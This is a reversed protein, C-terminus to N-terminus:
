VGQHSMDSEWEVNSTSSLGALFSFHQPSLFIFIGQCGILYLCGILNAAGVVYRLHGILDPLTAMVVRTETPNAPDTPEPASRWRAGPSVQGSVGALAHQNFVALLAPCFRRSTVPQRAPGRLAHAGARTRTLERSGAPLDRASEGTRRNTRMREHQQKNKRGGARSTIFPPFPCAAPRSARPQRGPLRSSLPVSTPEEAGPFAQSLIHGRFVGTSSCLGSSSSMWLSVPLSAAGCPCLGAM